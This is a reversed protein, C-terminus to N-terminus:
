WKYGLIIFPISLCQNIYINEEVAVYMGVMSLSFATPLTKKLLVCFPANQQM